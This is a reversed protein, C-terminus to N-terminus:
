SIWHMTDRVVVWKGDRKELFYTNGSASLGAEYYGGEVECRSTDACRVSDITFILGPKGTAKDKV